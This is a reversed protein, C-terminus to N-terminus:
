LATRLAKDGDEKRVRLAHMKATEILLWGYEVSREASIYQVYLNALRWQVEVAPFPISSIVSTINDTSTPRGFKGTLERVIAGVNSPGQTDFQLGEVKGDVVLTFGANGHIILPARQVPFHVMGRRWTADSLQIDTEYCTVAPDREYLYPSIDGNPDVLHKCEPLDIPQGLAIGFVVPLSPPATAAVAALAVISVMKVRM